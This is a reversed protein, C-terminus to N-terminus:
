LYYWFTCYFGYITFIFQNKIQFWICIYAFHVILLNGKQHHTNCNGSEMCCSNSLSLPTLLHSPANAPQFEKSVTMKLSSLFRKLRPFYKPINQYVWWLNLLYVESYIHSSQTGNITSHFYWLIVGLDRGQPLLFHMVIPWFMWQNFWEKILLVTFASSVGKVEIIDIHRVDNYNDGLLFLFKLLTMDIYKPTSYVMLLM